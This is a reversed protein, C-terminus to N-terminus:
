LFLLLIFTFSCKTLSYSNVLQYDLLSTCPQWEPVNPHQLKFSVTDSDEETSDHKHFHHQFYIIGPQDQAFYVIFWQIRFEVRGPGSFLLPLRSSLREGHPLSGKHDCPSHSVSVIFYHSLYLPAPLSTCGCLYVVEGEQVVCLRNTQHASIM